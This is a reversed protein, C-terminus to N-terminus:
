LEDKTAVAFWSTKSLYGLVADNLPPAWTEQFWILEAEYVNLGESHRLRAECQVDPLASPTGFPYRGGSYNLPRETPPVLLAQPRGKQLQDLRRQNGERTPLGELLGEYVLSQRLSVVQVHDTDAFRLRIPQFLPSM